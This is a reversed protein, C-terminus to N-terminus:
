VTNLAVPQRTYRDVGPSVSAKKWSLNGDIDVAVYLVMISRGNSRVQHVILEGHSSPDTSLNTLVGDVLGLYSQGPTVPIVRVKTGFTKGILQTFGAAISPSNISM